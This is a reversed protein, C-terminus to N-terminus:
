NLKPATVSSVTDSLDPLTEKMEAPSLVTGSQIFNVIHQALEFIRKHHKTDGGLGFFRNKVHRYQLALGGEGKAAKLGFPDFTNNIISLHSFYAVTMAENFGVTVHVTCPDKGAAQIMLSIQGNYYGYAIEIEDDTQNNDIINNLEEVLASYLQVELSKKLKM